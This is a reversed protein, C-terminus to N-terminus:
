LECKPYHIISVIIIIIRKSESKDVSSMRAPEADVLVVRILGYSLQDIHGRLVLALPVDNVGYTIM